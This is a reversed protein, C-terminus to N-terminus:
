CPILSLVTLFSVLSLSRVRRMYKVVIASFVQPRQSLIAAACWRTADREADRLMSSRLNASALMREIPMRAREDRESEDAEFSLQLTALLSRQVLVDVYRRIPATAHVVTANLCYHTSTSPHLQEPDSPSAYFARPAPFHRAVLAKVLGHSRPPCATASALAAVNPQKYSFSDFEPSHVSSVVKSGGVSLSFM